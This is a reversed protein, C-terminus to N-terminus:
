DEKPGTAAREPQPSTRSRRRPTADIAARFAAIVEGFRDTETGTVVAGILIAAAGARALAPVDDPTLAHQSPVILPLRTLAAVRAYDAVRDASLPTGYDAPAALSAEVAAYGLSQLVGVRETPEGAGVAAVAPVSGCADVYWAPAHSLYVDFFAFGLSRGADIEARRVQGEGGIVLGTPVGLAVIRELEAREEAVSGFRTGGARHHVNVHTKIGDAGAGIAAEALAVDNRPLSVLLALSSDLFTM